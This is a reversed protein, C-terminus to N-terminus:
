VLIDTWQRDDTVVIQIKGAENLRPFLKLFSGECGEETEFIVKKVPTRRVILVLLDDLVQTAESTLSSADSCDMDFTRFVLETIGPIKAISHQAGSLFEVLHELHGSAVELGCSDVVFFFTLNRLNVCPSLDPTSEDVTNTYLDSDRKPM